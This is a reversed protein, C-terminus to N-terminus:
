KEQLHLRNFLDWLIRTLSDPLVETILSSSKQRHKTIVIAVSLTIKRNTGVSKRQISEATKEPLLVQTEHCHCM